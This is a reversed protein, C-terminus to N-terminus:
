EFNPPAAVDWESSGSADRAQTRDPDGTGKSDTTTTSPPVQSAEGSPSTLAARTPDPADVREGDAPPSEPMTPQDQRRAPGQIPQHWTGEDEDAFSDPDHKM